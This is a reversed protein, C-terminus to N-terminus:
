TWKGGNFLWRLWTPTMMTHFCGLLLIVKQLTSDTCEALIKNSKWYLPQQDFTINPPLSYKEDLDALFIVIHM